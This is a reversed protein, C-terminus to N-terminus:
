RRDTRDDRNDDRHRDGDRGRGGTTADDEVDVHETRLEDSVTESDTFKEKGVHVREREVTEKEVVPREERLVIEEDRDGDTADDLGGRRAEGSVEEREVVLKEKSVPVEVKETETTTYKRLRARGTEETRTGVNLREEHATVTETDGHGRDRDGDLDRDRDKDRDHDHDRDRDRDRNGGRDGRDLRYHEYLREEEEPSLQGDADVRPADKVQEKTYDVRLDDGDMRANELPVFSESTGFLGTSVTAFSPHGSDDDTYITGVKGIKEGDSGYATAKDLREISNKDLM